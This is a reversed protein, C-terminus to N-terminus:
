ILLQKLLKKLQITLSQIALITLSGLMAKIKRCHENIGNQRDDTSSRRCKENQETKKERGRM